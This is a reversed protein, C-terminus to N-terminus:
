RYVTSRHDIEIVTIVLKDDHIRCLIRYDGWLGALNSSLAKGRSRPNGLAAIESMYRKIRNQIPKDLSSFQKGAKPAYEIKM